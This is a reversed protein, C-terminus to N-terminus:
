FQRLKAKETIVFHEFRVNPSHQLAGVFHAARKREEERGEGDADGHRPSQRHIDIVGNIQGLITDDLVLQWICNVKQGALPLLLVLSPTFHPPPFTIHLNRFTNVIFCQLSYAGDNSINCFQMKIGFKLQLSGM